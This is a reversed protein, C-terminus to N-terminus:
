KEVVKIFHSYVSAAKNNTNCGLYVPIRTFGDVCGHIVFRWKVLQPRKVSYVRRKIATRWRSAVGEPDVRSLSERVRRRPLFMSRAGISRSGCSPNGRKIERVIDGLQNDEIETYFAHVSLGYEQMRREVTRSSVHLLESISRTSFRAKLLMELQEKNVDYKPRGTFITAVKDKHMGYPELLSRARNLLNFIEEPMRTLTDLVIVHKQIEEIEEALDDNDAVRCM